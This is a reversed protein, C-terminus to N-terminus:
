KIRLSEGREGLKAFELTEGAELANRISENDLVPDMFKIYELPVNDTTTGEEIILPAKGGNKAINFSFLDTKFKTKGTTKMMTQLRQKMNDINKEITQRREQLRKEEAKLGNADSELSKMIKAYNDAKVEIEGDIAEMTDAIIQPDVDPDAMMAMLELYETTLEYISAM